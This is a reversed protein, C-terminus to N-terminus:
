QTAELVTMVQNTLEYTTPEYRILLYFPSKQTVAHSKANYTFEATPLAKAWEDAQDHCYIRLYTELEQRSVRSSQQSPAYVVYRM